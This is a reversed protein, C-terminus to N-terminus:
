ESSNKYIKSLWRPPEYIFVEFQDGENIEGAVEIVGVLGRSFKAAESFANEKLPEGSITTHLSAIKKSVGKCPPNYEEVMLEAGSPFKFITGKPLQSLNPIGSICLNAGISAASVPETLNMERTISALEELSVASWQRENRRIVGAPQKDGVGWSEREFSGHRDEVFGYLEAQLSSRPQKVLNEGALGLYVSEIQGIISGM